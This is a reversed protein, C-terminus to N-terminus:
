KRILKQAIKVKLASIQGVIEHEEEFSKMRRAEIRDKLRKAEARFLTIGRELEEQRKRILGETTSNKVILEELRANLMDTGDSSSRVARASQALLVDIAETPEFESLDSRQWKKMLPTLLRYREYLTKYKANAEENKTRIATLEEKVAEIEEAIRESEEAWNALTQLESIEKDMETIAQATDEELTAIQNKTTDIESEETNIEATLSRIGKELSVIGGSNDELDKQRGILAAVATETLNLIQSNSRIQAEQDKLKRQANEIKEKAYRDEQRKREIDIKMQRIRKKLNENELILAEYESSLYSNRKEQEGLTQEVEYIRDLLDNVFARHEPNLKNKEFNGCTVPFIGETSQRKEINRLEAIEQRAASVEIETQAIQDHLAGITNQQDNIRETLEQQIKKLDEPETPKEATEAESM